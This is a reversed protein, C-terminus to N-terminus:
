KSLFPEIKAAFLRGLEIESDSDYHATDPNNAPELNTHLGAEITDFYINNESLAAFDRKAQNVEAYYQWQSSDSIGADIFPVDVNGTYPRLDERINAVFTSLNEFYTQYYGWWADGEGQMWCFARITPLYGKKRLNQIQTGIYTILRPYMPSTRNM